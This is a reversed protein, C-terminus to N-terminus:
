ILAVAQVPVGEVLVAKLSLQQRIKKKLINNIKLFLKFGGVIVVLLVMFFALIQHFVGMNVKFILELCNNVSQQIFSHSIPEHKM